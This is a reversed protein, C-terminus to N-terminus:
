GVLTTVPSPSDLPLLITFVSGKGPQSAVNIVGNHAEVIMKVISLGLGVGGMDVPRAPEARYFMDFIHEVEDATMGIGTDSVEIAIRGERVTTRLRVMGESPTFNIANSLLHKIARRLDDENAQITPLNAQPEFM